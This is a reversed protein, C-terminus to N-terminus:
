HATLLPQLYDAVRAPSVHATLDITLPSISVVRDVALAYVDSDPELTEPDIRRTYGAFRRGGREPDEVVISEFYRQRSVRTIRWPTEVTAGQPVDVKLIDVGGPLPRQLMLRAVRRTVHSAVTFDVDDDHSLHHQIETELSVALAPVGFTAGEICAGITGSITIGVGVNEGYNIGAILLDPPRSAVLLLAARVVQAPSAEVAIAPVPVGDIHLVHEYHRGPRRLFNRSAGTQQDKPAVVLVEGLDRVAAVAAALGPSAIGDDNTILILPKDSM